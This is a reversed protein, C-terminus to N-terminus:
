FESKEAARAIRDRRASLYSPPHLLLRIGKKPLFVISLEKNSIVELERCSPFKVCVLFGARSAGWAAQETDCFESVLLPPLRWLSCYNIGTYCKRFYLTGLGVTLLCQATRVGRTKRVM